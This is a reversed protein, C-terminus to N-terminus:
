RRQRDLLSDLDVRPGKVAERLDRHSDEFSSRSPDGSNVLPAVDMQLELADLVRLILGFDVSTKGGEVMALWSRAVSAQRALANQTLQLDKRRGKIIAALDLASSVNM